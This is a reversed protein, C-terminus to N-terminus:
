QCTDPHVSNLLDSSIRVGVGIGMLIRDKWRDDASAEAEGAADMWEANGNHAHSYGGHFEPRARTRGGYRPPGSTSPGQGFDVRRTKGTLVDHAAKIAQFRAHSVRPPLKRAHPVDPHHIRVLEYDLPSTNAPTQSVFM